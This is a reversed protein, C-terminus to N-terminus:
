WGSRKVQRSCTLRRELLGQPCTTWADSKFWEDVEGCPLQGRSKRSARLISSAWQVTLTQAVKRYLIPKRFLPSEDRVLRRGTRMSTGDYRPGAGRIRVFITNVNTATLRM